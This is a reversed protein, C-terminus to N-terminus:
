LLLPSDKNKTLALIDILEPNRIKFISRNLSARPDFLTEILWEDASMNSLSSKGRLVFLYERAFSSLPKIRGSHLIPTQSFKFNDWYSNNKTFSNTNDASTKYPKPSPIPALSTGQNQTFNEKAVAPRILLNKLSFHTSKKKTSNTKEASNVLKITKYPKQKQETPNALKIIKYSKQKEQPKNTEAKAFNLGLIKFAILIFLLLKKM